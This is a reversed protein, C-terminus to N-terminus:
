YDIKIMLKEPADNGLYFIQLSNAWSYAYGDASIGPIPPIQIWATSGVKQIFVKVTESSVNKNLQNIITSYGGWDETWNIDKLIEEKM